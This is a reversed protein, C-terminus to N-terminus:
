RAGIIYFNNPGGFFLDFFVRGLFDKRYEAITLEYADKGFSFFHFGFKGNDDGSVIGGGNGSFADLSNFFM